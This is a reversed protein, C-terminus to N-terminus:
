CSADPIIPPYEYETQVELSQNELWKVLLRDDIPVEISAEPAEKAKMVTTILHM